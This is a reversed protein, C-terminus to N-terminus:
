PTASVTTSAASVTSSANPSDSYDVSTAVVRSEVTVSPSTASSSVQFPASYTTWTGGTGIRYELRSVSPSNAHTLSVTVPSPAAAPPPFSIVYIFGSGPIGDNPGAVIWGEENPGFTRNPWSSGPAAYASLSAFRGADLLQFGGGTATHGAPAFCSGYGGAGNWNKQTSQTVAYGTPLSAFELEMQLGTAEVGTTTKLIMGHRMQPFFSQALTLPMMTNFSSVPHGSAIRFGLIVKDQPAYIYSTSTSNVNITVTEKQYGPLATRNFAGSSSSSFQASSLSIQPATLPTPASATYGASVQPSSNWLNPQGATYAQITSGSAVSLPGSYQAFPASNVSVLIWSSLGPNPNTLDVTLNFQSPPYSGGPVSLVPPLLDSLVPPPSTANSGAGGSGDSPPLTTPVTAVSTGVAGSSLQVQSSVFRVPAPDSQDYSWVWGNATNYAILPRARDETQYAAKGATEDLRFEVIGSNGEGVVFRKQVADWTVVKNWIGPNAASKTIAKLRPDVMSGGLGAYQADSQASRTTKLKDLIQQPDTLSGISGGSATYVRLAQNIHRTDSNLKQFKAARDVFGLKSMSGAMLIGLVAVTILIEVM